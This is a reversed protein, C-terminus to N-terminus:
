RTWRESSTSPLPSRFLVAVIIIALVMSLALQAKGAGGGAASWAVHPRVVQAGEVVPPAPPADAIEPEPDVPQAPPRDLAGGIVVGGVATPLGQWAGAELVAGVAVPVDVAFRTVPREFPKTGAWLERDDAGWLIVTVPEGVILDGSVEVSAVTWDGLTSSHEGLDFTIQVAPDPAEQASAPAAVALAVCGLGLAGLCRRLASM